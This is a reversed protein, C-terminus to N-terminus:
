WGFNHTSSQEHVIKKHTLLFIFVAFLLLTFDL